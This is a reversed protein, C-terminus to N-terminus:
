YNRHAETVSRTVYNSAHEEPRSPIQQYVRFSLFGVLQALNYLKIFFSYFSGKLFHSPKNMKAIINLVWASCVERKVPLCLEDSGHLHTLRMWLGMQNVPCLPQHGSHTPDLQVQRTLGQIFWRQHGIPSTLTEAKMM